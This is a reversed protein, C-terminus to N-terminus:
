DEIKGGGDAKGRAWYGAAKMWERPHGREEVMYQRLARAVVGEAAIWVFGDGAPPTFTDLAACFRPPTTAKVARVIWTQVLDAPSQFSM